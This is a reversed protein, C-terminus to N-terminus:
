IPTLAGTSVSRWQRSSRAFCTAHQRSSSPPSLPRVHLDIVLKRAGDKGLVVDRQRYSEQHLNGVALESDDALPADFEDGSLATARVREGAVEAIRFRRADVRAELPNAVPSGAKLSPKMHRDLDGWLSEVALKSDSKWEEALQRIAPFRGLFGLLTIVLEPPVRDRWPALLRRLKEAAAEELADVDGSPASGDVAGGAPAHVDAPGPQSDADPRDLMGACDSALLHTKAMGHGVGAVERGSRWGGSATPVHTAAFVRRQLGDPWEAVAEFGHRYAQRAATATGDRKRALAALADLHRAALEAARPSEHPLQRLFSLIREISKDDRVFSLVSRLLPWAPLELEAGACALATFHEIPYNERRGLLGVLEATAMFEALADLSSKPDPFLNPTLYHVAPHERTDAPLGDITRFPPREGARSLLDKAAAAVADPLSLVEEPAVPFRGAAIWRAKKLRTRTEPPLTEGRESLAGLAGLILKCFREPALLTLAVTLM